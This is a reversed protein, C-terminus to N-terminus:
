RTYNFKYTVVLIKITCSAGFGCPILLFNVNEIHLQVSLWEVAESNCMIAKSFYRFNIVVSIIFVVYTVPPILGQVISQLKFFRCQSNSSKGHARV